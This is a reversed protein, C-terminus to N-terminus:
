AEEGLSAKDKAGSEITQVQASPSAHPATNTAKSCPADDHEHSKRKGNHTDHTTTTASAVVATELAPKSTSPELVRELRLLFKKGVRVRLRSQRGPELVFAFGAKQLASASRENGEHLDAYVAPVHPMLAHFNDLAKVLARPGLGKGRHSFRIVFTAFFQRKGDREYARNYKVTHIGVYGALKGDVRVAWYFSGRADLKCVEDEQCFRLFKEANDRQWKNGQAMHQYTGEENYIELLADTDELTLKALDFDPAPHVRAEAKQEAM